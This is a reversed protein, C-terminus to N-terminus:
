EQPQQRSGGARPKTLTNACRSPLMSKTRMMLKKDVAGAEHATVFADLADVMVNYAAIMVAMGPHNPDQASYMKEDIM